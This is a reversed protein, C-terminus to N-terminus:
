LGEFADFEEGDEVVKISVPYIAGEKQIFKCKVSSGLVVKTELWEEFTIKKGNITMVPIDFRSTLNIYGTKEKFWTPTLKNGSENFATIKDYPISESKIAIRNKVEESYKTKGKYASTVVGEVIIEKNVKNEKNEKNEKNTTSM